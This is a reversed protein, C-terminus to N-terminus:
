KAAFTVDDLAKLESQGLLLEVRKAGTKDMAGLVYMHTTELLTGPAIREEKEELVPLHHEFDKSTSVQYLPKGPQCGCNNKVFISYFLFSYTARRTQCHM